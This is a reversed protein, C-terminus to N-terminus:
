IKKNNPNEKQQGREIISVPDSIHTYLNGVERFESIMDVCVWLSDVRKSIFKMINENGIQPSFSAAPDVVAHISM